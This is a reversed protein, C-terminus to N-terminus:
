KNIESSALSRLGKLYRDQCKNDYAAKAKEYGKSMSMSYLLEPFERCKKPIKDEGQHAFQFCYADTHLRTMWSMQEESLKMDVYNNAKLSLDKRFEEEAKITEVNKSDRAILDKSVKEYENGCLEKRKFHSFIGGFIGKHEKNIKEGQENKGDLCAEIFATKNAEHTEKLRDVVKEDYKKKEKLTKDLRDNVEEMKEDRNELGDSQKSYFQNEAMLIKLRLDQMLNEASLIRRQLEKLQNCFYGAGSESSGKINNKEAFQLVREYEKLKQDLEDAASYYIKRCATPLAQDKFKEMFLDRDFRMDRMSDSLQKVYDNNLGKGEFFEFAALYADVAQELKVLDNLQTDWVSM